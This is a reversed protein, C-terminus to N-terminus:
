CTMQQKRPLQLLHSREGALVSSSAPTPLQALVDYLHVEPESKGALSTSSTPIGYLDVEPESKSALSTSSHPITDFPHELPSTLMTSHAPHPRVYRVPTGYWLERRIDEVQGFGV